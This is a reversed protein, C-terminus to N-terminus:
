ASVKSLRQFIVIQGLSNFNDCSSIIEHPGPWQVMGCLSQLDSDKNKKKLHKTLDRYFDNFEDYRQAVVDDSEERNNLINLIVVAVKGAHDLNPNVKSLNMDRLQEFAKSLADEAKKLGKKTGLYIKHRAAKLELLEVRSHDPIYFLALDLRGKGQNRNVQIETLAHFKKTQHAAAVFHPTFSIEKGSSPLFKDPIHGQEYLEHMNSFTQTLLGRLHELRSDKFSTVLIHKETAM